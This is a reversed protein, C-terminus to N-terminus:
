RTRPYKLMIYNYWKLNEREMFDYYYTNNDKLKISEWIKIICNFYINMIGQENTKSNIYKNSLEILNNKTNEEIINTDYLLITSQFYDIELNYNNYLENYLDPFQKNDFQNKLKWEYMPYSDSHALLKDDCDLNLIKDISKYIQMGVDIYFCKKWQKFYVDFCHIKHWQFVKTIERGDGDLPKKKLFEIINSRDFNPFYKVIVNEIDIKENKLDDGILLVVDDKYNGVKRIQNITIKAKELYGKNTMLIICVDSM